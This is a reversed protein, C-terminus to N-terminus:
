PSDREENYTPTIPESSPKEVEIGEACGAGTIYCEKVKEGAPLNGAVAYKQNNRLNNKWITTRRKETQIVYIGVENEDLDNHHILIDTDNVFIGNKGNQAIRCFKISLNELQCDKLHLGDKKNKEIKNQFISVSLNEGCQYFSIGYNECQRIQCHFISIDGTQQNIRIGETAFEILCNKFYTHTGQIWLGEWVIKEGISTFQIKEEDRGSAIIEGEVLLKRDQAFRIIVGPKITLRAKKTVVVDTLALYPNFDKELTYDEKIKAPLTVGMRQSSLDFQYTNLGVKVVIEQQYPHYYEKQFTLIFSQQESNGLKLYRLSFRGESDTTTKLSACKIEVGSLPLSLEKDYVYGKVIAQNPPIEEGM